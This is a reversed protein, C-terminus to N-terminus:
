AARQRKIAQRRAKNRRRKAEAAGRPLTKSKSRRCIGGKYGSPPLERRERVRPLPGGVEALMALAAFLSFRHEM